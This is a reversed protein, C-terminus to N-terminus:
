HEEVLAPDATHVQVSFHWHVHSGAAEILELSPKHVDQGARVYCTPAQVSDPYCSM